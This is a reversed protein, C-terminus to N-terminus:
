LHADLRTPLPFAHIKAVVYVDAAALKHVCLWVGLGVKFVSDRHNGLEPRCLLTVYSDALRDFLAVKSCQQDEKGQHFQDLFFWWFCDLFLDQSAESYFWREWAQYLRPKGSFIHQAQTVRQLVEVAEMWGPLPTPGLVKFGPYRARQLHALVCLCVSIFHQSILCM